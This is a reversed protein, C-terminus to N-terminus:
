YYYASHPVCMPVRIKSEFLLVKQITEAGRNPFCKKLEM